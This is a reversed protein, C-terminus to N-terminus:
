VSKSKGGVRSGHILFDLMQLLNEGAGSGKGDWGLIEYRTNNCLLSVIRM